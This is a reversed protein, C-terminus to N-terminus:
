IEIELLDGLKLGQLIYEGPKIDDENLKNKVFEIITTTFKENNQNYINIKATVKKDKNKSLLANAILNFERYSGKIMADSPVFIKYVLFSEAKNDNFVRYVGLIIELNKLDKIDNQNLATLTSKKNVKTVKENLLELLNKSISAGADNQINITKM